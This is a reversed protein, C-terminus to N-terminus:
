RPTAGALRDIVNRTIQEVIPARGGAVVRAWDTTSATFVTGNPSHVGMTAAMNGLGWGGQSLDSTGLITFDAPTGDRGTPLAPLGRKLRGIDFEAGDCEYGVLHQDPGNGFTEGDRLGTGAFVWHRAHQVRYGLPILHDVSREGGNRFSVGTMENEPGPVSGPASWPHLRRVTFRDDFAIQHWCTNGSFFAVNRGSQLFADVNARMEASWYEDHGVSLLLEYEGLLRQERDNHIDLDTCYDLRYRLAEIWAIFGADWHVFTQRPTPDFPDRNFLDWPTGGTGGGPRHLSVVPPVAAQLQDSDPVSYLSWGGRRTAPDYPEPTAQNYAHYTLLPVKYLIPARSRSDAQKVVFLAKSHRADPTHAEPARIVGGNRDGEVLMAIYVGSPSDAPIGFSYAPWPPLREGDLGTGAEGWDQFPPHPPANQGAHSASSWRYALTAGQRYFDVHFRPADTSVHLTLVEGPCVSPQDPYGQIM